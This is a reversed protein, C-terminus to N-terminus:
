PQPEVQWTSDYRVEFMAGISYALYATLLAIIWTFHWSTTRIYPVLCVAAV